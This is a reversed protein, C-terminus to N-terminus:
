QNEGKLNKILILSALSPNRRGQEWHEVTRAAVGAATGFEARSLGLKRRLEKIQEPKM